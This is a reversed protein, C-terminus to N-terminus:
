QIKENEFIRQEIEKARKERGLENTNIWRREREFSNRNKFDENELQDERKERDTQESQFEFHKEIRTVKSLCISSIIKM